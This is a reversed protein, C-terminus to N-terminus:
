MAVGRQALAGALAVTSGPSSTGLDVVIQGPRCAALLGDDGAMVAEVVTSDPLSLLIVEVARALEGLSGVQAIGRAAGAQPNSDFGLVAHGGAQLRAAIRGGMNGLGVIGTAPESM